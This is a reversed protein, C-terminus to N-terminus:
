VPHILGLTAKQHGKRPRKISGFYAPYYRFRRAASNVMSGPKFSQRMVEGGVIQPQGELKFGARQVM